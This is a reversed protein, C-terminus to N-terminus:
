HNPTLEAIKCVHKWLNEDSTNPEVPQFRAEEPAPPFTGVVKGTARAGAYAVAPGISITRTTCRVIAKTVTSRYTERTDTVLMLKPYDVRYEFAAQGNNRKVSAADIWLEGAPAKALQKWQAADVGGACALAALVFVFRFGIRM